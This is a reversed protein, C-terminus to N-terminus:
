HSQISMNGSLLAASDCHWCASAGIPSGPPTDAISLVSPADAGDALYAVALSGLRQLVVDRTLARRSLADGLLVLGDRAAARAPLPTAADSDLRILQAVLAEAAGQRALAEAGSAPGALVASQLEAIVEAPTVAGPVSAARNAVRTLRQPHLAASVTVTAAVRAAHRPDFIPGQESDIRERGQVPEWGYLPPSLQAALQPAVALVDPQLTAALSALAARQQADPVPTVVPGGEGALRYDFEFGGLYKAAAQVQYRHYLYIPAFVTQLDSAPQEGAVSDLGFSALAAARVQMTQDLSAVADDGNDWLSGRAHAGGVPRAHADAVFHLGSAYARAVLANLASAEDTGSPFERYLWNVAFRDWAGMGIAYADDLRVAGSDDLTALPAPYDMVSARGDASAAMNHAFGLTHGVEHAALQRIRALAVELPDNPGGTGTAARSTLGEFIMRDQRVRQSGLIVHGKIMEGTRPDVVGGGYSWGRTQRHVWQIVNYRIDLPHVGEPMLEVRYADVFGAAEFADAWWGAGEILASRIPEPAGRDVYFVIPKRVRSRDAEPQLKDLRFRRATWRTLPAELPRAFDYHLVDIVSTRPDAKRVRFGPEPLRVISHHLSLSVSRPDAATAQVERGPKASVFTLVADLELNDPFALQSPAVFSRETNLAFMGQDTDRLQAAIGLQDRVLFGDLDILLAGDGRTGLIPASWIVSRAFSDRTAQREASDTTNATFEANQNIFVLREGIRRVQLLRGFDGAGRDLGVPNSGLGTLLRTAYIYQGVEGDTDPAPLAALVRGGAPAAYLDWLGERKELGAVLDDFSAGDAAPLPGTFVAMLCLARFAPLFKM